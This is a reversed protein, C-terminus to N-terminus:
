PTSPPAVRAPIRLAYFAEKNGDYLRVILDDAEFYGAIPRQLAGRSRYLETATGGSGPDLHAWLERGVTWLVM